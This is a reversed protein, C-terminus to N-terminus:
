EKAVWKLIHEAVAVIIHSWVAWPFWILVQSAFVEILTIDPNLRSPVLRLGLTAVAAPVIWFGILLPRLKLRNM